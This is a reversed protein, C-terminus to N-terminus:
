VAIPELLEDLDAAHIPGGRLGRDREVPRRGAGRDGPLGLVARASGPDEGTHGFRATPGEGVHIVGLGYGSSRSRSVAHPGIMRARTAATLFAASRAAGPWGTSRESSIAAGDGAAGGDPAATAPM